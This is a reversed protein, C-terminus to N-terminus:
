VSRDMSKIGALYATMSRDLEEPYRYGLQTAVARATARFLDATAFLAEWNEETGPGVFTRELKEWVDPKLVVNLGRGMFGPSLSWDHDLEVRWELMVRLLNFKIVADFSFKAPLLEDRWLNKAVYSTELWFEEVLSQFDPESPKRPVHAAYTPPKLDGTLNDKDVLVRYGVDLVDPLQPQHLIGNLLETSWLSYDIKTGDQHLVLRTQVDVGCCRYSDRCRVLVAGYAHLWFDDSSLSGVDSAAVIVDYDSLRDPSANPNARSSTLILARVSREGNAWRVLRGLVEQETVDM